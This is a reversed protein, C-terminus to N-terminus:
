APGAVPEEKTHTDRWARSAFSELAGDMLPGPLVEIGSSQAARPLVAAIDGWAVNLERLTMPLEAADRAHALRTRVAAVSAMDAAAAVTLARETDAWFELVADGLVGNIEDHTVGLRTGLPSAIAHALGLRTSAFAEGAVFSATVIEAPRANLHLVTRLATSALLVSCPTSRTSFLSEIAHVATDLAGVALVRRQVRALLTESVFVHAAGFSPDVVTPRSGDLEDVVAFRAAARYPERGCPVFELEVAKGDAGFRQYAIKAADMAAGSGVAVLRAPRHQELRQVLVDVTLSNPRTELVVLDVLTPTVRRYDTDSMIGSDDLVVASRDDGAGDSYSVTGTFSVRHQLTSV